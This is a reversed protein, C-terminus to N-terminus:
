LGHPDHPASRSGTGEQARGRQPGGPLQVRVSRLAGAGRAAIEQCQAAEGVALGAVALLTMM